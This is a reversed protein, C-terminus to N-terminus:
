ALMGTCVKLADKRSFSKDCHGCPYPKVALHIRKHRKLDHNRNFSQMCQDCKFPRDNPPAPQQSHPPMSYMHQMGGHGGHYGGMMGSSMGSVMGMPANAHLNNMVPAAPYQNYERQQYTQSGPASGYMAAGQHPASLPSMRPHNQQTPSPGSPFQHVTSHPQYYSSSASSSRLHFPEQQSAPSATSGATGSTASAMSSPASLSSSSGFPPLQYLDHAPTPQAPKSDSVIGNLSSPSNFMGRPPIWQQQQQQQPTTGTPASYPAYQASHASQPPPAQAWYSNSHPYAHASTTQNSGSSAASPSLPSTYDGHLTNPPTLLNGVGASAAIGNAAM